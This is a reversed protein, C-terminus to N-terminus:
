VPVLLSVSLDDMPSENRQYSHVSPISEVEINSAAGRFGVSMSVEIGTAQLPRCRFLPMPITSLTM